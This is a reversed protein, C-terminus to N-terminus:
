CKKMKMPAKKSAKPGITRETTITASVKKAPMKAMQKAPSKGSKLKSMQKAPTVKVREYKDPEGAFKGETRKVRTAGDNIKRTENASKNGIKAAEKKSFNLDRAKDSAAISDYAAAREINLEQGKLKKISAYKSTARDVREEEKKAKEIAAKEKPTFKQLLASSIGGGTKMGNGRGPAQKYAM